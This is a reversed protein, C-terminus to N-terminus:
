PVIALRTNAVLIILGKARVNDLEEPKLVFSGLNQINQMGASSLSACLICVRKKKMGLVNLLLSSIM